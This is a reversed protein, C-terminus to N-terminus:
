GNRPGSPIHGDEGLGAVAPQGTEPLSWYHNNAIQGRVKQNSAYRWDRMPPVPAPAADITFVNFGRQTKEEIRHRGFINITERKAASWLHNIEVVAWNSFAPDELVDHVTKVYIPLSMNGGAFVAPTHGSPGLAFHFAWKSCNLFSVFNQVMKMLRIILCFGILPKQIVQEIVILM